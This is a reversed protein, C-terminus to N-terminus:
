RRKRRIILPKRAKSISSKQGNQKPKPAEGYVCAVYAHFRAVTEKPSDYYGTAALELIRLRDKASLKPRKKRSAKKTKRSPEPPAQDPLPGFDDFMDMPAM